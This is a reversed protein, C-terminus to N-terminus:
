NFSNTLKWLKKELLLNKRTCKLFNSRIHNKVCSNHHHSIVKYYGHNRQNGINLHDLTRNSLSLSYVFNQPKNIKGKDYYNNIIISKNNNNIQYNKIPLFGHKKALSNNSVNYLTMNGLNIKKRKILKTPNNLYVNIHNLNVKKQINNIPNKINKNSYKMLGLRNIIEPSIHKKRQNLTNIKGFNKQRFYKQGYYSDFKPKSLPKYKSLNSYSLQPINIKTITNSNKLKDGFKGKYKNNDEKRASLPIILYNKSSSHQSYEVSNKQNITVRKINGSPINKKLKVGNNLKKPSPSINKVPKINRKVKDLEEKRKTYNFTGSRKKVRKDAPRFLNKKVNFIKKTSIKNNIIWSFHLDNKEKFMNLVRLLLSRLYNYNPKQAFELKRCYKYFDTLEKPFGLFLIEPQIFKKIKYILVLDELETRGLANDWPLSGKLFYLLLYCLSELDDRRSQVVGRLSNASAFRTTGSWKENIVFKAHKGTRSSMFKKALGFDIIYIISEDEKGVLFNDPKVDRHVVFKSHIYELRDLIQIGIMCCDKLSFRKYKLIFIQNISNGLLTQVLINYKPIHGYSFLEPIGFGKLDYLWYAEQELILNAQDKPELKIAVKKKSTIVEGLYVLGFSGKGIRKLIRYKNFFEQNVLEDNKNM